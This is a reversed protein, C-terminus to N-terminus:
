CNNLKKYGASILWNKAEDVFTKNLIHKENISKFTASVGHKQLKEIENKQPESKVKLDHGGHLALINM